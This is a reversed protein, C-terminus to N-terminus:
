GGFGGQLRLGVVRDQLREERLVGSRLLPGQSFVEGERDCPRPDHGDRPLRGFTGYSRRRLGAALPASSPSSLESAGTSSAKHVSARSTPVCTRLLSAGSTASAESALGSPSSPWPLSSARPFSPLVAPSKRPASSPHDAKWWDDVLVYLSVLFSDLDMM